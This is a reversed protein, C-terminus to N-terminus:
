SIVHVAAFEEPGAKTVQWVRVDKGTGDGDKEYFKVTDEDWRSSGQVVYGGDHDITFQAVDGVLDKLDRLPSGAVEVVRYPRGSVIPAPTTHSM